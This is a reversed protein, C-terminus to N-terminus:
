PVGRLGDDIRGSCRLAMNERGLLGDALGPGGPAHGYPPLSRGATLTTPRSASCIDGDPLPCGPIQTGRGDALRVTGTLVVEEEDIRLRALYPGLDLRPMMKGGDQGRSAEPAQWGYDDVATKLKLNPGRDAIAWVFDPDARARSLGSGIGHHLVLTKGPFEVEGIPEDSWHLPVVEVNSM